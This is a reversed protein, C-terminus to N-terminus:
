PVDDAMLVLHSFQPDPRYGWGALLRLLDDPTAGQRDLAVPHLELALRRVRRARFVAEGGLLAEYEAGEIDMKMLDVRELGFQDLVQGLTATEVDQTRVAYRTGRYFSSSGHNTTPALHLTRMAPERGVANGCLEVNTIGNLACNKLIVAHLRAQPEVAVVRGGSGVLRGAIVSFYGENAGVDVFVHGPQLLRHLTAAMEEEYGGGALAVGLNSIPDVWFCGEPTELPKRQVRLGAKLWDAVWAPRVRPLVRQLVRDTASM